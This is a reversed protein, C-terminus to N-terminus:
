PVVELFCYQFYDGERSYDGGKQAFFSIIAGAINSPSIRYNWNENRFYNIWLNAM